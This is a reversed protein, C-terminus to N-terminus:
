SIIGAVIKYCYNDGEKWPEGLSIVLYADLIDKPYLKRDGFQLDTL